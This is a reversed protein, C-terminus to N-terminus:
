AKPLLLDPEDLSLVAGAPHSAHIASFLDLTFLLISLRLHPRSLSLSLSSTSCPTPDLAGRERGAEERGRGVGVPRMRVSVGVQNGQRFIEKFVECISILPLMENISLGSSVVCFLDLSVFLLSPQCPFPPSM